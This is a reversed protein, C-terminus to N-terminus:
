NNKTIESDMQVKQMFIPNNLHFKKQFVFHIKLLLYIALLKLRSIRRVESREKFIVEYFS